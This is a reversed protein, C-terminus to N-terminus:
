FFDWEWFKRLYEMADLEAQIMSRDELIINM